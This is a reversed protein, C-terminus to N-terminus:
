IGRLFDPCGLGFGLGCSLHEAREAAQDTCERDATFNDNGGLYWVYIPSTIITASRIRSHSTPRRGIGAVMPPYDDLWRTVGGVEFGGRFRPRNM